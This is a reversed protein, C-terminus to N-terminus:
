TEFAFLCIEINMYSAQLMVATSSYSVIYVHFHFRQSLVQFITFLIPLAWPYKNLRDFGQM